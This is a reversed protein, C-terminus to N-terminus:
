KEKWNNLVAPIEQHFQWEGAELSFVSIAVHRTKYVLAKKLDGRTIFHNQVLIDGVEHDVSQALGSIFDYQDQNIKGTLHLIVGIQEDFVNSQAAALNGDIFTLSRFHDRDKIEVTGSLTEKLIKKLILPVPSDVIKHKM